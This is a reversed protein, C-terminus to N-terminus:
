TMGGIPDATTAAGCGKTARAVDVRAGRRGDYLNIAQCVMDRWDFRAARALGSARLEERRINDTLVHRLGEALEGAGPSGCNVIIGADGVIEPLSAARACVLPTGCAMAELAPFGFGEYLSPMVCVDALSYLVPLDKESVDDLFHIAPRIGLQEALMALRRREPDFHPRGVKIL